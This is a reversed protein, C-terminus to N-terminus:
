RPLVIDGRLTSVADTVMRIAEWAAALGGKMDCAGRGVLAPQRGRHHRRPAFPDASWAGLDGPPVVDTHGNIM